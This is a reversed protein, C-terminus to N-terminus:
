NRSVSFSLFYFSYFTFHIFLYSSLFVLNALSTTWVADNATKTIKRNNKSLQHSQNNFKTDFSLFTPNITILSYMQQVLIQMKDVKAELSNKEKELQNNKRFMLHMKMKDEEEPSFGQEKLDLDGIEASPCEEIYAHYLMFNKFKEKRQQCDSELETYFSKSLDLLNKSSLLSCKQVPSKEKEDQNLGILYDFTSEDITTILSKAVDRKLFNFETRLIFEKCQEKIRSNDRSISYQLFILVTDEEVSTLIKDEIDRTLAEIEFEISIDLLNVLRKPEQNLNLNSFYIHAFVMELEIKEFKKELKLSNISWENLQNAFYDNKLYLIIKTLGIEQEDYTIIRFDDYKERNNSCEEILWKLSESELADCNQKLALYQTDQLFKLCEDRLDCFGRRIASNFLLIVTDNSLHTGILCNVVEQKMGRIGFKNIIDIIEVLELPTKESLDLKKKFIAEFVFYVNEYTFDESLQLSDTSKDIENLFFSSKLSAIAKSFIIERGSSTILKFDSFKDNEWLHAFDSEVEGPTEM